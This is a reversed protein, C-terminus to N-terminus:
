HLMNRRHPWFCGCKRCGKFAKSHKKKHNNGNNDPTNAYFMNAYGSSAKDTNDASNNGQSANVENSSVDSSFSYGNNLNNDSM